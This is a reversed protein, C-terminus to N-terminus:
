EPRTVRLSPREGIADLWGALAPASERWRVAQLRFDIYALGVAIALDGIDPQGRSAPMDADQALAVITREVAAVWREALVATGHPHAYRREITVGFAADILSRGLGYKMLVPIGRPFLTAGRGAEDLFLCICVSDVISRGDDTVLAPVKAAPNVALLEPPLAWPDTWVLEVQDALCKEHVVVRALRAYPSAQNLFLRM